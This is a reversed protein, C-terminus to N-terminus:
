SKSKDAIQLLFYCLFIDEDANNQKGWYHM